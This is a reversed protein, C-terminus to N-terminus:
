AKKVYGKEILGDLDSQAVGSAEKGKEIFVGSAKINIQAIYVTKSTVIEVERVVDENDRNKKKESKKSMNIDGKDDVFFHPAPLGGWVNM